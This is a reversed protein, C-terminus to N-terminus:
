KITQEKKSIDSINSIDPIDSIDSIFIRTNINTLFPIIKNKKSKFSEFLIENYIIFDLGTLISQEINKFSNTNLKSNKIQKQFTIFNDSKFDKLYKHSIYFCVNFLKLKDVKKCISKQNVRSFIDIALFFTYNHKYSNFYQVISNDLKYTYIKIKNYKVNKVNLLKLCQLSNFRKTKDLILTNLILLKIKEPINLKQIINNIEEQTKDEFTEDYKTYMSLVIGGLSFMDSKQCINGKILEPPRFGKTGALIKNKSQQFRVSHGFDTIKPIICSNIDLMINEHKIDGHIIKNYHLYHLGKLIGIIINIKDKEKLEFEQMYQYLNYKYYKMLVIYRDIKKSGKEIVKKDMIKKCKVINEHDLRRWIDLTKINSVGDVSKHKNFVKVAYIKNNYTCQYVSGESGAGSESIKQM